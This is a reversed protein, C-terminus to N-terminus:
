ISSSYPQRVAHFAFSPPGKGNLGDVFGASAIRSGTLYLRAKSHPPGGPQYASPGSPTAPEAVVPGVGSIAMQRATAARAERSSPPLVHAEFVEPAVVADRGLSAPADFPCSVRADALARDGACGGVDVDAEIIRFVGDRHM